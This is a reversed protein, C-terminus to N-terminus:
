HAVYKLPVHLDLVTDRLSNFAYGVDACHTITHTHTIATHSVSLHAAIVVKIDDRAGANQSTMIQRVYM